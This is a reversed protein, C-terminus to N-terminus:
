SHPLVFTVHVGAQVWDFSQTAVGGALVNYSAQVGLDILPILTFDLGVGADGTVNTRGARDGYPDDFTLHGVGLHAFVNPRFIVGVGIRGGGMLRYVTPSIAGGFEHFGGDLETTLTLVTLDLRPGGHIDVGAGPGAGREAIGDNYNLDVGIETSASAAGSWALLAAGSALFSCLGRHRLVRQVGLSVRHLRSAISLKM